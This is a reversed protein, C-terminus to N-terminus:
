WELDSPEAALPLGQSDSDRSWEFIGGRDVFAQNDFGADKLAEQVGVVLL